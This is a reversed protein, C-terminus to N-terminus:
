PLGETLLEIEKAADPYQELLAARSALEFDSFEFGPAVTCGVFSFAAEEAGAGTPAEANQWEPAPINPFSGFWTGRKVVYQVLQGAAIDPGLVTRRAGAQDIEVVTIPAGLYFHWVEDSQIRHLRSINGRTMLFYIATSASREGKPTNVLDSSRFTEAYFGGEPHPQMNFREVLQQSNM